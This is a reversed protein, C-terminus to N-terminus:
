FIAYARGVVSYPKLNGGMLYRSDLSDPHPTAVFFEGPAIVGPEAPVLPVGARSVTKAVGIFQDNVWFSRDVRKVTDGGEGMVRKIFMTGRPYTAGGPWKFAVLDGKHVATGKVVVYLKGPLSETVNVRYDLYFTSLWASVALGCFGGCFSWMVTTAKM